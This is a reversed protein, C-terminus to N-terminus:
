FLNKFFKKIKTFISQKYEEQVPYTEPAPYYMPMNPFDRHTAKKGMKIFKDM